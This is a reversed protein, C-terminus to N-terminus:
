HGNLSQPGPAFFVLVEVAHTINTFRHSTGTPIYAVSGAAMPHHTDGIVLEATGATVFYLEDQTHPAQSDEYGPRAIFRGVSLAPTALLQHYGDGADACTVSAWDSIVARSPPRGDTVPPPRCPRERSCKPRRRSV